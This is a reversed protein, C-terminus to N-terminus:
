NARSIYKDTEEKLLPKFIEDRLFLCIVEVLNAKVGKARLDELTGSRGTTIRRAAPILLLCTLLGSLVLMVTVNSVVMQGYIPKDIVHSVPNAAALMWLGHIM